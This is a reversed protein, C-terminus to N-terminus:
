LMGLIASAISDIREDGTSEKHAIYTMKVGNNTFYDVKKKETDIIVKGNFATRELGNKCIDVCRNYIRMYDKDTDIANRVVKDVHYYNSRDLGGFFNMVPTPHLGFVDVAIHAATYKPMIIERFRVRSKLVDLTTGMEYSVIKAIRLIKADLTIEDIVKKIRM